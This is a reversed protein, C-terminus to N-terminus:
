RKKIKNENFIFFLTFRLCMNPENVLSNQMKNHVFVTGYVYKEKNPHRSLFNQYTVQNSDM